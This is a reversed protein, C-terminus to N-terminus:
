FYYIFCGCNAFHYCKLYRAALFFFLFGRSTIVHSCFCSLIHQKWGPTDLLFGSHGRESKAQVSSSAATHILDGGPQEKGAGCPSTTGSGCPFRCLVCGPTWGGYDLSLFGSIMNMSVSPSLRIPAFYIQRAGSNGHRHGFSSLSTVGTLLAYRVPPYFFSFFRMEDGGQQQQIPACHNISSTWM